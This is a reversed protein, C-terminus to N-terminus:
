VQKVEMDSFLDRKRFSATLLRTVIKSRTLWAFRAGRRDNALMREALWPTVTEVKDALINFIRRNEDSTVSEMLLDTVVLGPNIDSVKVPSDGLEANLVKTLYALGYKSAGYPTSGKNLEGQSGLGEMNYIHGGGQSIMGEIAVKCCYMVGILNSNVVNYLMEPPLTWMPERPTGIAANNIWLDIRGYRSKAADWLAQVQQYDTVECIQGIVHERGFKAGLTEVAQDVSSLTRSSIVVKCDRELFARALGYGIGRTSGTIVVVKMLAVKSLM